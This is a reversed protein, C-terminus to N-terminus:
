HATASRDGPLLGVAVIRADGPATGSETVYATAASLATPGLLVMGGRGPARTSCRSASNYAHTYGRGYGPDRLVTSPLSILTRERVRRRGAATAGIRLQQVCRTTRELLLRGDLLSPNSLAAGRRALRLIRLRGGALQETLIQSSRPTSLAFVVSAADLSPRGIEGALRSSFIRRRTAPAALSVGILREVGAPGLQRYVLWADSVALASVGAAAITLRPALSARDAVTISEGTTWAIMSGGVAPHAGPLASVGGSPARAAGAGDIQQWVLEGGASSPDSGSVLPMASATASASAGGLALACLMLGVADLRRLGLWLRPEAAMEDLRRAGAGARLGPAMWLVPLARGAGFALGVVAGLLPDGAAFCIGALAWVAFALVFTTFGLGLLVGYLACALPLPMTWRWHEPVQRRIQPAIRVGRWDAVAAALALAAGLGERLGGAGGVLSGALALAGFTLTGGTLTGLAFAAGAILAAGRRDDGMASGITDVMSFGCPSWAGTVGAVAATVAAFAGVASLL